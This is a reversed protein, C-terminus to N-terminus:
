LTIFLQLSGSSCNWFRWSIWSCTQGSLKVTQKTFCTQLKDTINNAAIWMIPKSNTTSTLRCWRIRGHRRLLPPWGDSRNLIQCCRQPSCCLPSFTYSPTFTFPCMSLAESFPLPCMSLAEFFILLAPMHGLVFLYAAQTRLPMAMYSPHLWLCAM